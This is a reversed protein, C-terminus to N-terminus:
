QLLGSGVAKHPRHRRLRLGQWYKASDVSAKDDIGVKWSDGSISFWSAGRQWAYGAVTSSDDTALYSLSVKPDAAHVKAADAAFDDWTKPVAIGYRQFLDARYYLAMPGTDQPIAYTKGGPSVQSWTWDLFTSKVDQTDQTVDMLMGDAVFSSVQDYTLQALCGGNGAQVSSRIKPYAEQGNAVPSYKVQIDPHAKNWIAVAKDAKPVWGMYSITVPNSSSADGSGAGCGALLTMVAGAAVVGALVKLKKM